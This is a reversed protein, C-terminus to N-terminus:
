PKSPANVIWLAILLGVCVGCLFLLGFLEPDHM